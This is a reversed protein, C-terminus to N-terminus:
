EIEPPTDTGPPLLRKGGRGKDDGDCTQFIVPLRYDPADFRFVRGPVRIKPPSGPSSLFTRSM